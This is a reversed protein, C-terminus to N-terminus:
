HCSLFSEVIFLENLLTINNSEVFILNGKVLYKQKSSFNKLRSPSTFSFNQSFEGRRHNNFTEFSYCM